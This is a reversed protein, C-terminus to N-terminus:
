KLRTPMDCGEAFRVDNLADAPIAIVGINNLVINSGWQDMPNHSGNAFLHLYYAKFRPPTETDGEYWKTPVYTKGGDGGSSSSGIYFKCAQYNAPAEVTYYRNCEDDDWDVVCKAETHLIFLKAVSPKTIVLKESTYPRQEKKGGNKQPSTDAAISESSLLILVAIGVTSVLVKM